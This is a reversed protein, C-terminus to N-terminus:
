AGSPLNWSGTLLLHSLRLPLESLCKRLTLPRSEVRSGPTPDNPPWSLADSLNVDQGVLPSRTVYDAWGCSAAEASTISTEGVLGSRVQHQNVDM